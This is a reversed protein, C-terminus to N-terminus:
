VTPAWISCSELPGGENSLPRVIPEVGHAEIAAMIPAIADSDACGHQLDIVIGDVGSCALVEAALLSPSNLWGVIATRGSDWCTRIRNPRIQGLNGMSGIKQRGSDAFADVESLHPRLRPARLFPNTQIELGISTPITAHGARRQEAIQEARDGLLASDDVYARARMRRPINM